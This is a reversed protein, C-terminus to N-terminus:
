NTITVARLVERFHFRATNTRHSQSIERPTTDELHSIHCTDTQGEKSPQLAPRQM